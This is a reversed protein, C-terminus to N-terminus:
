SAVALVPDWVVPLDAPIYVHLQQLSDRLM